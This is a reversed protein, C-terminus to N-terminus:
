ILQCLIQLHFTGWMTTIEQLRKIARIQNRMRTVATNLHYLSSDFYFCWHFTSSLDILIMFLPISNTILKMFSVSSHLLFFLAPLFVNCNGKLFSYVTSPMSHMKRARSPAIPWVWVLHHDLLSSLPSHLPGLVERLILPIRKCIPRPLLPPLPPPLLQLFPHLQTM